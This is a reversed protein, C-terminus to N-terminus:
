NLELKPLTGHIGIEHEWAFSWVTKMWCDTALSQLISYDQQLLYGPLGIEVQLQELSARILESIITQRKGEYICTAIHSLEQNFYPHMIGLGQYIKPSYLVKNPFKRSLEVKPLGAERIPRM